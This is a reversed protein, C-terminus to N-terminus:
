IIKYKKPGIILVPLESSVKDENEKRQNIFNALGDSILKICDAEKGIFHLYGRETGVNLLWELTLNFYVILPIESINLNDSSKYLLFNTDFISNYKEININKEIRM